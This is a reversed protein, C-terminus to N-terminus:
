SNHKASPSFEESSVGSSSESLYLIVVGSNWLSRLYAHRKQGNLVSSILLMEFNRRATEIGIQSFTYSYFRAKRKRAFIDLSLWLYHLGHISLLLEIV